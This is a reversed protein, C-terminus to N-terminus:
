KLLLFLITCVATVVAERSEITAIKAPIIMKGAIKVKLIVGSAPGVKTNSTNGSIKLLNGAPINQDVRNKIRRKRAENVEVTEM